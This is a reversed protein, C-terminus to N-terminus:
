WVFVRSYRATPLQDKANYSRLGNKTAIWLLSTTCITQSGQLIWMSKRGHITQKPGHNARRLQLNQQLRADRALNMDAKDRDMNPWYVKCRMLSKTRNKGPHGMHFDRLIIRQLSNPIVERDKYLLVDDFLSFVELVNPDKDHFKNKISQIFQDERSERKINALTMPFEKVSNAIVNKIECDTRLTGIISDEFVETNQPILRSLSDAHCINKSTLFEIKTNYNLLISGWRFLINGTYVPLGKKSGIITILPKHDTQLRFRRGHLYKHFKTVAFIIGIAEKETQSYKKEASLLSGSAQAMAKRPGDPLKHLICAGIGYSSADSAVLINLTPDYLTLSLDSTRTKMFKVFSEQCEPTCLWPKDKKLLKNLPWRLYKMNKIFGQYFNTLVLFILLSQINVSAPM